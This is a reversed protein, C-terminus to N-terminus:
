KKRKKMSNHHLHNNLFTEFADIPYRIVGGLKLFPPGNGLARKNALTRKSIELIDAAQDPRYFLKNM